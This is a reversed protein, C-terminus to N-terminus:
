TSILSVSHSFVDALASISWSSPLGMGTRRAMFEAKYFSDQSRDTPSLTLSRGEYRLICDCRYLAGGQFVKERALKTFHAATNPAHKNLM